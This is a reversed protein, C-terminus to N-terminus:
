PKPHAAFFDWIIASPFAPNEAIVPWDHGGGAITYLEVATGARCPSYTTHTLEGVKEVQVPGACGDLQVWTEIGYIV